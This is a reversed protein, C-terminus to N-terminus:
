VNIRTGLEAKMRLRNPRAHCGWRKEIKTQKRQDANPPAARVAHRPMCARDALSPPDIAKKALSVRGEETV